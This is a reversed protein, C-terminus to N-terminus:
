TRLVEEAAALAAPLDHQLRQAPTVVLVSGDLVAPDAVVQVGLEGAGELMVADSPSLHVVADAPDAIHRLASRVAAAVAGDISKLERGLAAAALQLAGDALVDAVEIWEPLIEARGARAAEGLNAVLAQVQAAVAQRAAEAQRVIDIRAQDTAEAAAHRGQSWGAAYGEARAEHRAQEAAVRILEELHPDSYTPDM